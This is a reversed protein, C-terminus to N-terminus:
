INVVCGDDFEFACVVTFCACRSSERRRLDIRTVFMWSVRHTSFSIKDRWLKIKNRSIPFSILVIKLKFAALEVLVVYVLRPARLFGTSSREYM